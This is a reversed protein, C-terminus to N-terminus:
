GCRPRRRRAAPPPARPPARGGPGAGRLPPPRLLPRSRPSSVGGPTVSAAASRQGPSLRRKSWSFGPEPLTRRHREPPRLPQLRLRPRPLLSPPSAPFPPRASPRRRSRAARPLDRLPTLFAPELPATSRHPLFSAPISRRRPGHLRASTSYELSFRPVDIFFTNPTIAPTRVRTRHHSRQARVNLVASPATSHHTQGRAAQRKYPHKHNKRM